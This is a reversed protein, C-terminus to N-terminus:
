CNGKKLEDRIARLLEVSSDQNEKIQYFWIILFIGLILEGVGILFMLTNWLGSLDIM